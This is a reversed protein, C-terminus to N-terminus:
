RALVTVARYEPVWDVMYGLSEALYRLGVMMYGKNNQLSPDQASFVKRMTGRSVTITGDQVWDVTCGLEEAIARLPLMTREQALYPKSDQNLELRKGNVWVQIEETPEAYNPQAQLNALDLKAQWIVNNDSDAIYLSNQSSVIGVPSGLIAQNINGEAKGSKGTGFLTIVRGTPLIARVRYNWTDAIILTGDELVTLGKPFNFSAEQRLGDRYSGRYYATGALLVGPSGALTEVKGGTVKRILQNGSDAIYVIGKSDITLASPENFIAEGTEGDQFGAEGTSKGAYTSVVGKSTIKRIVNNLTDAVYVNGAKDVALGSPTNFQAERGAGNKYGATGTGALTTVKGNAIKRIAHNETDAVYIIDQADVVVARPRNFKAKSGDGDAYGGKPLGYADTGNDSGALTGVIGNAIVRVANNYCDAVYLYGKSDVALGYPTNFGAKALLGDLKETQGGGTFISIPYEVALLTQPLAVLLLAFISIFLVKSIIKRSLVRM